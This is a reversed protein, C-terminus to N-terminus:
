APAVAAASVEDLVERIEGPLEVEESTLTGRLQAATRAGVVPAVVGPQDRVWALAIEAPSCGLGDAAAVVAEVVRRSRDDLFPEVFAAFHPSAARSDAPTGRRYKGTLVGRGLPSWALLGLGHAAAAGVVEGEIGRALLSYEVQHAVLPTTGRVQNLTAARASQWGRYNSVGVYRTRGTSVAWELASLTEDLPTADSWTHALWLDVHDTGLRALSADLADLLGRRSTDVVRSGSRRSIGAKTCIVVDERTALDPLLAGVLEEAAGDGYGAATDLFTGGADLFAKLQDRSEHEDTDRGWTMTGLALRSVRLGSAGVTRQQM